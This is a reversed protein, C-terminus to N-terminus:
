PEIPSEARVVSRRAALADLGEEGLTVLDLWADRPIMLPSADLSAGDFAVIADRSRKAEDLLALMAVLPPQMGAHPWLLVMKATSNTLQAMGLRIATIASGRPKTRAVRVGSPPEAGAALAVVIPTAGLEHAISAMEEVDYSDSSVVDQALLLAALPFDKETMRQDRITHGVFVDYMRRTGALPQWARSRSTERHAGEVPM